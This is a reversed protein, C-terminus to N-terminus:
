QGGEGHCFFLAHERISGTLFYGVMRQVFAILVPDNPFIQELFAKWKPCDMEFDPTVATSKTIYDERRAERLKGTRLDVTGNPTGLLWDDADWGGVTRIVRQDKSASDMIADSKSHSGVKRALDCNGQERKIEASAERAIDRAYSCVMRQETDKVWRQGNWRM